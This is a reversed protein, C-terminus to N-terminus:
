KRPPNLFWFHSFMCLLEVCLTVQPWFQFPPYPATLHCHEKRYCHWIFRCIGYVIFQSVTNSFLNIDGLICVNILTCKAIGDDVTIIPAAMNRIRLNVFGSITCACVEMKGRRVMLTTLIVQVCECVCASVMWCFWLIICTATNAIFVVTMCGGKEEERRTCSWTYVMLARDGIDHSHNCSCADHRGFRIISEIM